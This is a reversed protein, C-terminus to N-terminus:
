YRYGPASDATKQVPVHLREVRGVSRRKARDTEPFLKANHRPNEGGDGHQYARGDTPKHARRVARLSVVALGQRPRNGVVASHALVPM